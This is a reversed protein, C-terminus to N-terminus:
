GVVENPTMEIEIMAIDGSDSDPEPTAVRKLIGDFVEPSGIANGDSDLPQKSVHMHGKGCLPRLKHRLPGDRGHRYQRNIVVNTTTRPGGQAEEPGMAGAHHRTETSDTEGGTMTDFVGLGPDPELEAIRAHVAYQHKTGAM